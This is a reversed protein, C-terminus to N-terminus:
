SPNRPNIHNTPRDPADLGAILEDVLCRTHLWSALADLRIGVSPDASVCVACAGLEVDASVRVSVDVHDISSPCLRAISIVHDPHLTTAFWREDAHAPHSRQFLGGGVDVAGGILEIAGVIDALRPIGDVIPELMASRLQCPTLPADSRHHAVLHADGGDIELRGIAGPITHLLCTALRLPQSLTTTPRRTPFM